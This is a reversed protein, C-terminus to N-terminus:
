LVISVGGEVEGREISVIDDYGNEQPPPRIRIIYDRHADRERERERV